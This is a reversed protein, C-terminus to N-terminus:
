VADMKSLLENDFDLQFPDEDDLGVIRDFNQALPQLFRDAVDIGRAVMRRVWGSSVIVTHGASIKPLNYPDCYEPLGYSSLDVACLQVGGLTLLADGGWWRANALFGIM